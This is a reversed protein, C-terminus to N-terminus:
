WREFRENKVLGLRTIGAHKITALFTDIPEYRAEAGGETMGFKNRFLAGPAELSSPGCPVLRQRGCRKNERM